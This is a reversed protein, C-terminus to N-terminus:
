IFFNTKNLFRNQSDYNDDVIQQHVNSPNLWNNENNIINTTAATM